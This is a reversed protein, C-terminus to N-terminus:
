GIFQIPQLNLGNGALPDMMSQTIQNCVITGMVSICKQFLTISQPTSSNQLFAIRLLVVHVFPILTINHGELMICRQFGLCVLVAKFFSTKVLRAFSQKLSFLEPIYQSFFPFLLM